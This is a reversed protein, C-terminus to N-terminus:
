LDKMIKKKILLIKSTKIYGLIRESNIFCELVYFYNLIKFPNTFISKVVFIFAKKRKGYNFNATILESYYKWKLKRSIESNYTNLVHYVVLTIDHLLIREKNDNKPNITNTGHIRYKTLPEDIFYYEYKKALALEFPFDSIIKLNEYFKLNRVNERKFILSSFLIYNGRLLSKFINGSTKRSPHTFKRGIYNSKDDIIEGQTWVVLNEDKEMIQLQKELKNHDWVDDSNLFAVFKGSALSLLENETKSIGKNENHYNVRIRKDKKKYEKIIERSNDISYDDIIIFEFDKFTQNLVSEITESLYKEHNYSPLLISVLVM